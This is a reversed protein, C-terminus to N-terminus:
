VEAEDTYCGRWNDGPEFSQLSPHACRASYIERATAIRRSDALSPHITSLIRLLSNKSCKNHARTIRYIDLLPIGSCIM